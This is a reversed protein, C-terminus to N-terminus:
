QGEAAAAALALRQQELALKDATQARRIFSKFMFDCHNVTGYQAKDNNTASNAMFGVLMRAQVQAQARYELAKLEYYSAIRQHEAPTRASVVLANLERATLKETVLQSVPTQASVALAAFLLSSLVFTTRFTM